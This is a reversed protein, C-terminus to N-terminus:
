RAIKDRLQNSDLVFTVPGDNVLHVEMEAQFVGTQVAINRSKLHKLFYDYLERAKEPRAADDFGPRRGKRCDGYLTFQSVVLLAGSVELLSRNMRGADDRFIRLQIVKEALYEAEAITDTHTIGLLIVLGDAISGVTAGAIDVHASKVRQLVIRM